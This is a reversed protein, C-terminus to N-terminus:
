LSIALGVHLPSTSGAVWLKGRVVTNSMVGKYFIFPMFSFIIKNPKKIRKEAETYQWAMALTSFSVM